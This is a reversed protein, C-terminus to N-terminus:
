VRAYAVVRCQPGRPSAEFRNQSAVPEQFARVKKSVLMRGIGHPPFAKGSGHAVNRCHPAHGTAEQQTQGQGGGVSTEPEILKKASYSSRSSSKLARQRAAVRGAPSIDKDIHRNQTFYL